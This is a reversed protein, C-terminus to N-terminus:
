PNQVLGNNNVGPIDKYYDRDQFTHPNAGAVPKRVFIYAPQAGRLDIMPVLATKVKNNFIEHFTRRRILDWYNKNEFALEVTRERLVNELTLPIDVTHGARRRIDNLGKLALAEANNATYNSEVVAEALNLLVEAYRLDMFDTTSQAWTNIHAEENLFKRMLFGSRTMDASGDFGSYQNSHEAGYTYYTTGNHEFSGRSQILTGDPTVIGGQIVIDTGKWVAGPYTISAFFRADKGEFIDEPSEFRLYDATPDFGSSVGAEGGTTTVVPAAQGPNDYNEYLDILELVPNTRGRYPFGESTQNPNNWGDYDHALNGGAFGYGKIFIVENLAINPDMFMAQYNAAAERPSAPQGKYLSFEGSNILALSAEICETYYRNAGSASMGVFGQDAAPGTLPVTNWYKALSAAHLAARSKLAYAAWKTARRKTEDMNSYAEPLNSIAFDLQSLVFDWTEQETSRPVRLTEFDTTYEQNETIVPVGGYRKALAYYTYARLFAAEGLLENKEVDSMELGPIIEEVINLSRNLKYGKEWWENRFENWNPWESHIAEISYQSLSMSGTNGRANFGERPFYTFGEVPAQYYLNALFAKVGQPDALLAEGPIKNKPEVDLHDSCSLIGGLITCFLFTIYIKKHMVTKKSHYM